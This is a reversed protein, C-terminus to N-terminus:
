VRSLIMMSVGIDPEPMSTCPRSPAHEGTTLSPYSSGPSTVSPLLTDRRRCCGTTATASCVAIHM